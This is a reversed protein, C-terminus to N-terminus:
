PSKSSVLGVDPAVKRLGGKGGGNQLLASLSLYSNRGLRSRRKLPLNEVSSVVSFNGSSLWFIVVM